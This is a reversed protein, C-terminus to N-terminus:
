RVCSSNLSNFFKIDFFDVDLQPPRRFGGLANLENQIRTETDLLMAVFGGEYSAEWVKKCMMSSQFVALGFM